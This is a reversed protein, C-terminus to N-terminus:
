QNLFLGVFILCHFIDAPVDVAESCHYPLVKGFSKGFQIGVEEAKLFCLHLGSLEVQFEWALGGIPVVGLLFAVRSSGDEGSMGGDIYGVAEAEFFVVVFPADDSELHFVVIEDADIGWVTLVSEASEVVSHSPLIGEAVIKKFEIALFGDDDTTVHVHSVFFDVEFVRLCVVLIRAKCVFFSLLHGYQQVAAEGVGEAMKVGVVGVTVAPPAVTEM